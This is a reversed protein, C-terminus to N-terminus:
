IINNNVAYMVLGATNRVNLKSLLNRRHTEITHHSVNLAESIETSTFERSILKLIERERDTLQIIEIASEVQPKEPTIYSQFITEAVEKSYYTQGSAVKKIAEILDKKGTNKLIYGSAGTNIIQNIYKMSKHMTLMLVKAYKYDKVVIKTTEIGNMEPMNIDMLIVDVVNKKLFKIVENGNLAQGSVKIASETALVAKLGDIFMQHDDAILVRIM